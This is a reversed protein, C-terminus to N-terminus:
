DRLMDQVRDGAKGYMKRGASCVAQTDMGGLETAYENGRAVIFDSYPPKEVNIAHQRLLIGIMMNNPKLAPCRNSIAVLRVIHTMVNQQTQTQAQALNPVAITVFLGIAVARVLM